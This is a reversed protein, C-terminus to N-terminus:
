SACEQMLLFVTGHPLLITSEPILIGPQYEIKVGLNVWNQLSLNDGAQMQAIHDDTLYVLAAIENHPQPKASLEANFAVLYYAQTSDAMSGHDSHTRKEWILRPRILEDVLDICQFSGDPQLFLTKQASSLGTIVNGIEERGERLACEAFSEACTQRKGGVGFLRVREASRLERQPISFVHYGEWKLFLATGAATTPQILDSLRMIVSLFAAM